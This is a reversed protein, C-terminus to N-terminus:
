DDYAAGVIATDGSVSVSRGFWDSAAGDSALLKKREVFPDITIPYVAEHDAVILRIGEQDAEMRASIKEGAADYVYLGSYRIVEEGKVNSFVIGRGDKEVRPMLNTTTVMQLQLFGSDPRGSPRTKLTFGQEIGRQDNTYWEVMNGRHYEIRNDEAIMQEVAAVAHLDSGYGCRNLSLGWIWAKDEQNPSVIFGEPTFTTDLRHASNPAEYWGTLEDKQIRYRDREISAKIRGWESNTLGEPIADQDGRTTSVQLVADDAIVEPQGVEGYVEQGAGFLLAGVLGTNILIMMTSHTSCFRISKKM